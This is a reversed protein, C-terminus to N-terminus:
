SKLPARGLARALEERWAKEDLAIRKGKLDVKWAEKGTLGLERMAPPASAPPVPASLLAAAGASVPAPDVPDTSEAEPEAQDEPEEPGLDLQAQEVSHSGNGSAREQAQKAIDTPQVAKASKPSKAM